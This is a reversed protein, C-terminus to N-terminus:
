LNSQAFPGFFVLTPVDAMKQYMYIVINIPNPLLPMVDFALKGTYVDNTLIDIIVILLVNIGQAIIKAM